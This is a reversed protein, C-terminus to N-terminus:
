SEVAAEVRPGRAHVLRVAAAGLAVFAVAVALAWYGLFPAVLAVGLATIASRHRLARGIRAHRALTRAMVALQAEEEPPLPNAQLRAPLYAHNQWLLRTALAHLRSLEAEPKAEAAMVVPLAHTRIKPVYIRARGLETVAEVLFERAQEARRIKDGREDGHETLALLALSLADSAAALHRHATREVLDATEDRYADGRSPTLVPALSKAPM